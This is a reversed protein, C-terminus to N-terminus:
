HLNICGGAELLLLEEQLVGIKRKAQEERYKYGLGNLDYSQSFELLDDLFSQRYFASLMYVLYQVLFAKCTNKSNM